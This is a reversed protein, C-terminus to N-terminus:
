VPYLCSVLGDGYLLHARGKDAIRRRYLLEKLTRMGLEGSHEPALCEQMDTKMAEECKTVETVEKTCHYM